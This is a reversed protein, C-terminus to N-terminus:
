RQPVADPRVSQWAAALAELQEPTLKDLYRARVGRVHARHAARLKAKGLRTLKAYTGRGDRLDREREVLGQRELVDVVRSLGSKSLLIREALESMRLRTAPAEGLHVLVDYSTLPLGQEALLEEDLESILLSHVTLM